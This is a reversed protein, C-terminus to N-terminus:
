VYTRRGKVGRGHVEFGLAGFGVGFGRMGVEGLMCGSVRGGVLHGAFAGDFATRFAAADVFHFVDAGGVIRVRMSVVVTLVGCVGAM